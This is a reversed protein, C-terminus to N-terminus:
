VDLAATLGFHDTLRAGGNINSIPNLSKVTLEKSLVMHDISKRGRFSVDSSVVTMSSLFGEMLKARLKSPARSGHGVVQNFDGMILRPEATGRNLIVSLGDLFSEHDVWRKKREM